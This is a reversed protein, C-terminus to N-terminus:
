PSTAAKLHRDFHSTLKQFAFRTQVLGELDWGHGADPLVVFDVDKGLQILRQVLVVSDKFLVVTDRMGHLIMLPDELGDAHLFASSDAYAEPQDEPRMMVTMQGTLAHWVNTAPAGAFGAAYLGPKRFLSMCTLLGGYSSGWIGIREADVYGLSGLYRAGSALDEVDIGGYDLRIGQRFERGRGWSGRIDVNLLIYGEQALLQDLGWTPHATRGGWQNRVTDSYVSGLIAPYSRTPDFDPPLTLRGHLTVGDVQSPFTVYRPKVWRYDSFGPLPSHTIRRERATVSSSVRDQLSTLLLEPPMEDSSFAVAARRGDPSVLPSHTGARESVRRLEGGDLQTVFLQREEPRGRNAVILLGDPLVSFREVAWPGETIRRPEGGERGVYYVHYDEDRDSLFFLGAGDPSFEMQWQFSVNLPNAERVLTRSTATEGNAPVLVLRRDKVYLDSTDFAITEGGPSWRYSHVWPALPPDLELWQLAGTLSVVAHKQHPSPDGTYARRLQILSPEETLYDPISRKPVESQDVVELALRDSQPSWRFSRVAADPGSIDTLQRPREGQATTTWLDGAHLFALKRGDPSFAARSVSEPLEGFPRPEEGHSTIWVRSGFGMLLSHGDPHWLVTTVGPDRESDTQAEATRISDSDPDAPPPLPRPMRTVRHPSSDASRTDLTWVDHFDTGEDNWLFALKSGDGSWTFGTPATGILRPLSYLRELTLARDQQALAADLGLPVLLTVAVWIPCLRRGSRPRPRPHTEPKRTSHKM